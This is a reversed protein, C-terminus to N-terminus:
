GSHHCGGVRWGTPQPGDHPRVTRAQRAQHRFGGARRPRASRERRAVHQPAAPLRSPDIRYLSRTEPAGAPAHPAHFAHVSRRPFSGPESASAQKRISRPLYSAAAAFADDGRGGSATRAPPFSSSGRSRARTKPVAQQTAQPPLPSSLELLCASFHLRVVRALQFDASAPKPGPPRSASGITGTRAAARGRVWLAVAVSAKLIM